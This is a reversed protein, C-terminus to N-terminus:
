RVHLDAFDSIKKTATTVGLYAMFIYVATSLVTGVFPFPINNFIGSILYAISLGIILGLSGSILKATPMNSLQLEIRNATNLGFSTLRPAFGFSLGAGILSSIIIGTVYWVLSNEKSILGTFSNAYVFIAIGTLLGLVTFIGRIIKNIM